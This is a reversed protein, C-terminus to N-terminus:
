AGARRLAGILEKGQRATALRIFRLRDHAPHDMARRYGVAYEPYKVWTWRIINLEPDWRYFNTLPERNGNWLQQRTLARRLTRAIVRRMAVRRPPDLWIVTDARAWVLDLVNPYNGDVVWSEGAIAETVRSRFEALALDNWGAQHIIADLEVIPVALVAALRGGFTTKGSGPVGVVSVRRIPGGGIGYARDAGRARDTGCARDASDAEGLGDAM